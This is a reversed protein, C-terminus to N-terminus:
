KKDSLGLLEEIQSTIAATDRELFGNSWIIKYDMPLMDNNVLVEIGYGALVDAVYQDSVEVSIQTQLNLDNMKTKVLSAFTDRSITMLQADVIKSAITYSLQLVKELLGEVELEIRDHIESVIKSIHKDIAVEEEQQKQTDALHKSLAQEKTNSLLLELEEKTFTIVEPDVTELTHGIEHMTNQDAFHSTDTEEEKIVESAEDEPLPRQEELKQNLDPFEFKRVKM